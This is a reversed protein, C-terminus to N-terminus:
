RSIEVKLKKLENVQFKSYKDVTISFLNKSCRRGDMVDTVVLILAFTQTEEILGISVTLDVDRFPRGM